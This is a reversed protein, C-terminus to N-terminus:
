KKRELSDYQLTITESVPENKTIDFGDQAIKSPWGNFFNWRAIETLTTDYIVVSGNKRESTRNGSSMGKDRLSMFWTWLNDKTADDPAIRKLTLEGTLKPKSMTVLQIQKGDASRQNVDTKELELSLGDVSTLTDIVEGDIELFFANAVLPEVKTLDFTPM